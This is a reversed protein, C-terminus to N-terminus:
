APHKKEDMNPCHLFRQRITVWSEMVGDRQRETERDRGRGGEREGM